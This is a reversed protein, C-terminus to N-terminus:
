VFGKSDIHYTAYLNELTPFIVKSIKYKALLSYKKTKVQLVM